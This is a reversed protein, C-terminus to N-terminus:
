QKAQKTKLWKTKAIETSPIDCIRVQLHHSASDVDKVDEDTVRRPFLLLDQGTLLVFM